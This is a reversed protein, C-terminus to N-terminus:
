RPPAAGDHSAHPYDGTLQLSTSFDPRHAAFLCVQGLGNSERAAYGVRSGDM